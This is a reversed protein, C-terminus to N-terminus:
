VLEPLQIGRRALAAGIVREVEPSTGSIAIEALLQGSKSDEAIRCVFEDAFSHSVSKVGDFNLEIVDQGVVQGLLSERLERGFPRTALTQGHESLDYVFRM